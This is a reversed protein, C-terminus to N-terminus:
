AKEWFTGQPTDMLQVGYSLIEERLVDSREFDKAKKAENRAEILEALKEKTAEDVGAQFYEYPNKAGFGLVKEIFKLNAMTEKKLAKHKGATDLTENANAIM